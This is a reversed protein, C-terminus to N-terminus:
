KVRESTPKEAFLSVTQSQVPKRLNDTDESKEKVRVELIVPTVVNSKKEKGSEKDNVLHKIDVPKDFDSEETKLVDPSEKPVKNQDSKIKLSLGKSGFQLIADKDDIFDYGLIMDATPIDIVDFNHQVAPNDAVTITLQAMEEVSLTNGDRRHLTKNVPLLKVEEKGMLNDVVRPNVSSNATGTDVLARITTGNSLRVPVSLFNNSKIM